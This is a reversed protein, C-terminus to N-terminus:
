SDVGDIWWTAGCAQCEHQEDEYAGDNSEWLRWRHGDDRHCTPCPRDSVHWAQFTGDDDPLPRTHTM